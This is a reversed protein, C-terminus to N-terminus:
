EVLRAREVWFEWSHSFCITRTSMSIPLKDCLTNRVYGASRMCLNKHRMRESSDLRSSIAQADCNASARELFEDVSCGSLVPISVIAAWLISRRM